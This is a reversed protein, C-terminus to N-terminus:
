SIKGSRLDKARDDLAGVWGSLNPFFDARVEVAMEELGKAKVKALQAQLEEDTLKGFLAKEATPNLVYAGNDEPNPTMQELYVDERIISLTLALKEAEKSEQKALGEAVAYILDAEQEQSMLRTDSFRRSHTLSVVTARAAELQETTPIPANAM